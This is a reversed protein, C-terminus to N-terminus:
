PPLSSETLALLRETADDVLPDGHSFVMRRPREKRLTDLLWARYAPKDRIMWKFSRGLKLGPAVDLRKLIFGILGPPAETMNFFGDCVIWTPGGDGPVSLFAEGTKVHPLELFRGGDPLPVEALAGLEAHGKRSLRPRAVDSCVARAQPYRARYKKLSMHHFHNPAFLFRPAGVAEVQAYVEDGGFTPSHVLLGGSPLKVLVMNLLWGRKDPVGVVSVSGLDIV